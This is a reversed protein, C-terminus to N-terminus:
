LFFIKWTASFKFTEVVVVKLPEVMDSNESMNVFIDYKPYYEVFIIM